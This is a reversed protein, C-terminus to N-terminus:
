PHVARRVPAGHAALASRRTLMRRQHRPQRCRRAARRQAPRPTGTRLPLRLRKPQLAHVRRCRATLGSGSRLGFWWRRMRSRLSTWRRPPRTAGRRLSSFRGLCPLLRVLEPSVLGFPGYSEIWCDARLSACRRGNDADGPRVAPAAVSAERPFSPAGIGRSRRQRRSRVVHRLAESPFGQRAACAGPLPTSTTLTSSQRRCAAGRAAWWAVGTALRRWAAVHAAASRSFTHYNYQVSAPCLTM